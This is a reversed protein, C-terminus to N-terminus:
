RLTLRLLPDYFRTLWHFGLAPIYLHPRDKMAFAVMPCRPDFGSRQVYDLVTAPQPTPSGEISKRARHYGGLAIAALYFAVEVKGGVVGLHALPFGVAALTGAALANRLLPYSWWRGEFGHDADKM